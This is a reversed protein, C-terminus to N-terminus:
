RAGEPFVRESEAVRAGAAISVDPGIVASDEIHAGAGIEARPGIVAAGVVAGEGVRAREQV